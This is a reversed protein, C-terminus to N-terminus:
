NNLIANIIAAEIEETDINEDIIRKDVFWSIAKSVLIDGPRDITASLSTGDFPVETYTGNIPIYRRTNQIYTGHDFSSKIIDGPKSPTCISMHGDFPVEIYKGDAYTLKSMDQINM